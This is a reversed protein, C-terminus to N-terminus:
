YHQVQQKLKCSKYYKVPLITLIQGFDVIIHKCLKSQQM